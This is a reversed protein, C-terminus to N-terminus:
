GAYLRHEAIFREVAKPVKGTIPQGDHVAKRIGSASVDPTTTLCLAVKAKDLGVGKLDEERPAAGGPRAVVVITALAIVKAPEHWTSFLKAADWGLILFLEDEPQEKKLQSLTDVTYSPGERKLELDSVEFRPEGEIGLRCMEIRQHPTAIAPPRHPPQAAPMFLVRDLEACDIAADAAALHGFHFPDFTGGLLGVRM